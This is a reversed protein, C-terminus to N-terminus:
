IYECKRKKTDEVPRKFAVRPSSAITGSSGAVGANSIKTPTSVLPGSRRTVASLFNARKTNASIQQQERASPLQKQRLKVLLDNRIAKADEM